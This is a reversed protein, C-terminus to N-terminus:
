KLLYLMKTDPANYKYESGRTFPVSSRNISQNISRVMHGIDQFSPNAKDVSIKVADDVGVTAGAVETVQATLPYSPPGQSRLLWTYTPLGM